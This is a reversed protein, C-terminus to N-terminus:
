LAPRQAETQHKPADRGWLTQHTVVTKNSKWVIKLLLWDHCNMKSASEFAGEPLESLDVRHQAYANSTRQHWEPITSPIQKDNSMIILSNLTYLLSHTLSHTHSRQLPHSPSNGFTTTNQFTTSGPFHAPTICVLASHPSTLHQNLSYM